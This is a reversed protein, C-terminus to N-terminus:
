ALAAEIRDLGGPGPLGLRIMRPSWPFIRSWVRHRALRDRLAAADDVEYLRFLDTGGSGTAGHATMVRDLRRADAQLRARTEDAWATDNLAATGVAQAPGSIAWPGIEASLRAVLDPDGIAFGLRLGALGWFKGLGKLVLTGPTAAEAVLSRAPALDCFSEDIVRLAAPPPAAHFRGTPNNPHVIVSAEHGAPDSADVQWGAGAFAPAYENYTPGPIAVRGPRALGPLRPIASSLGPVPLIRAADPVNWFERAARILGDQAAHDPLATWFHPAIPPLPYAVPNIGTSLDMWDGRAGGYRAVAADLGGGHDRGTM